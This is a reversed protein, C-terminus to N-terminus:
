PCNSTESGGSNGLANVRNQGLEQNSATIALQTRADIRCELHSTEAGHFARDGFELNGDGAGCM